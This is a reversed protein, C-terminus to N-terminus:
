YHLPLIQNLCASPRGCPSSSRQLPRRFSAVLPWSRLHEAYPPSSDVLASKSPCKMSTSLSPLTPPSSYLHCWRSSIRFSAYSPNQTPPLLCRGNSHTCFCLTLSLTAVSWVLIALAPALYLLYLSPLPPQQRPRLSFIFARSASSCSIVASRITQPTGPGQRGAQDGLSSVVYVRPTTINRRIRQM